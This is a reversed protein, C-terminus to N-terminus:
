FGDLVEVQPGWTLWWSTPTKLQSDASDWPKPPDGLSEDQVADLSM